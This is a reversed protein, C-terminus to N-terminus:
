VTDNKRRHELELIFMANCAVHALHSLGSEPDIEEGRGVATLHRLLAALYRQEGGPVTQWSHAAYKNAGFTLVGGVSNIANPCGSLLLDLRPKGADYKMGGSDNDVQPKDVEKFRRPYFMSDPFDYLRVRDANDVPEGEYVDGLKLLTDNRSDPVPTVYKYYKM